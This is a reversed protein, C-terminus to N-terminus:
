KTIVASNDEPFLQTELAVNGSSLQLTIYWRLYNNNGTLTNYWKNKHKKKKQKNQKQKKKQKTHTKAKNQERNTNKIM